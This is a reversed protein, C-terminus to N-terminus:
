RTHTHSSVKNLENSIIKFELKLEEINEVPYKERIYQAIETGTILPLEANKESWLNDIAQVINEIRSQFAEGKWSCYTELQEYNYLMAQLTYNVSGTFAVTNGMDDRAFGTKFHVLRNTKVVKIELRNLAILYSLCKFSFRRFDKDEGYIQFIQNLDNLSVARTKRLRYGSEIATVDELFLKDNCIFNFRGGNEVFHLLNEAGVCFATKSFYGLAFTIESAYKYLSNYFYYPKTKGLFYSDQIDAKQLDMDFMIDFTCIKNM